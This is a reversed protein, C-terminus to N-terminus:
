NQYLKLLFGRKSTLLRLIDMESTNVYVPQKRMSNYKLCKRIDLIPSHDNKNIKKIFLSLFFEFKYIWRIRCIELFYTCYTGETGDVVIVRTSVQKKPPPVVEM